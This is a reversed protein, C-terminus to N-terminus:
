LENRLLRGAILRISLSIGVVLLLLFIANAIGDTFTDESVHAKVVAFGLGATSAMAEAFLVMITAYPLSYDIAVLLRASLPQTRLGWLAELAPYAAFAGVGITKQWYGIAGLWYMLIVPAFVLPIYILSAFPLLLRQLREFAVFARYVILALFIGLALAGLLEATSTRLDWWFTQSVLLKSCAGFVKLPTGTVTALDSLGLVQWLILLSLLIGLSGLLSRTSRTFFERRLLNGRFETLYHFDIQLSREIIFQFLFIVSAGAYGGAIGYAYWNWGYPELWLQSYISALLAHRVAIKAVSFQTSQNPIGSTLRYVLYDHLAYFGVALSCTLFVSTSARLLTPKWPVWVPLAWYFLFPSWMGLRAFRVTGQVLWEARSIFYGLITAFMGGMISVIIVQLVFYMVGRIFNQDTLIGITEM